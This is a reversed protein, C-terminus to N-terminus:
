GNDEEEKINEKNESKENIDLEIADFEAQIFPKVDDVIIGWRMQVLKKIAGTFESFIYKKKKTILAEDVYEGVGGFGAGKDKESRFYRLPLRCGGSFLKLFEELAEITFEPKAPHIAKIEILTDESAGVGSGSGVADAADITNQMDTQKVGSKWKWHYFGSTKASNLAIDLECYRLYMLLDWIQELDYEGLDDGTPTGFTVLLATGDNNDVEARYFNLNETHRRWKGSGILKKEWVVKCGIPNDNKDYEISEIERWTFVKWYPAKNYLQVVCFSHVRALDFMKKNLDDWKELDWEYSVDWVSAVVQLDPMITTDQESFINPTFIPKEAWLEEDLKTIYTRAFHDKKVTFERHKWNSHDEAKARILPSQYSYIGYVQTMDSLRTM